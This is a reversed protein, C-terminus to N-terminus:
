VKIHLLYCVVSYAALSSAFALQAAHFGESGEPGFKTLYYQKLSKGVGAKGLQDRSM